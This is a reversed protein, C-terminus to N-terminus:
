CFALYMSTPTRDRRVKSLIPHHASKLALTGSLDPRKYDHTTATQVFSAIMDIIGISESVQFLHSAHSQLKMVLEQVVDDSQMVVDDSAESLRRNLKMLDLTQCEFFRGKRIANVFVPPLIEDDLIAAKIRLWYKRGNDFKLVAGVGHRELSRNANLLSSM